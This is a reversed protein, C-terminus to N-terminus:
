KLEFHYTITPIANKFISLKYGRIEGNESRFFVSYANARSTLNYVSFSWSGHIRKNVNHNGEFNFAIDTRFYDPIRFKNRDTFLLVPQDRIIYEAVPLTTPRGTSYNVNLSLNVRRNIKFNSVVAVTHPQDFNSPYYEGSNIQEDSFDGNARLLSRAYTYSIWGSLKGSSKKLLVEVGYSKGSASIIDTQLSENLLLEAGDKYELFNRLRKYYGEVSMELSTGFFRKYLGVSYQNGIQPKIHDNSLRWNDIPSIATTNSLVHIYQNMRDFAFKFSLDDSLKYRGSLRLEPGFYTKAIEHKSYSITDTIFVDTRPQGDQFVFSPGPGISNFMTMRFGGYVSFRNSLEQEYGIYLATELGKEQELTVPNVLSATGMPQQRGPQLNYFTAAMGFNLSSREKPFYNFDSKIAYQDIKYTQEFAELPNEKSSFKYNYNAYSLSSTSHLRNSFSHRWQISANNNFYRFVTDTSLSFKDRSHYASVVLGNKEDIRHNTKVVVDSFSGSSNRLDPDDLLSFIWDSYTSRIGLIYSSTDKKIPGELTLKGTVPSIGGRFKFKKKNGDRLAVDFVSSIRGGYRAEIGSKYLDARALVDPNFVSFFGFLHNTNYIPVDNLLVLNQDASGGRVNFGATGEGVTQVGPLTLAIKMIDAEGMISPIQRITKINMSAFGTQLNDVVNQDATIVVEKLSIIDNKMEVDLQGDSFLMVQRKVQKMGTYDFFLEHRGKPLTFSFYGLHDTIVGVLPNKKFVSAGIIPEGTKVEKLYGSITASQGDFRRSIEGIEFLTNELRKDGNSEAVERINELVSTGNEEDRKVKEEAGSNFFKNSLETKISFKGTAILIGEQKVLFNTNSESKLQKALEQLKIDSFELNVKVSDLNPSFYFRLGYRSELDNVMEIFYTDRYFGTLSKIGQAQTLFHAFSLFFIILKQSVRM